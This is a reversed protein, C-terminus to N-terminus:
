CIKNLIYQPWFFVPKMTNKLATQLNTVQPRLPLLAATSKPFTAPHFLLKLVFKQASASAKFGNM